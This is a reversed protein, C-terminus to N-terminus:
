KSTRGPGRLAQGLQMAPSCGAINAVFRAETEPSTGRKQLTKAVKPVASSSWHDKSICGGLASRTGRDRLPDVQGGKRHGLASNAGARQNAAVKRHQPTAAGRRTDAQVMGIATGPRLLEERELSDEREPRHVVGKQSVMLSSAPNLWPPTATATGQRLVPLPTAGRSTASSSCVTQSRKVSASPGVSFTAPPATSRGSLPAPSRASNRAILAPHWPSSTDARHALRSNIVPGRTITQSELAVDTDFTYMDLATPASSHDGRVFQASTAGSRDGSQLRHLIDNCSSWRMDDAYSDALNALTSLDVDLLDDLDPPLEMKFEQDMGENPASTSANGEGIVRPSHEDSRCRQRVPKHSHRSETRAAGAFESSTLAFNPDDRFPTANREAAFNAQSRGTIDVPYLPSDSAAQYLDSWKPRNPEREAIQEEYQLLVDDHPDHIEEGRLMFDPTNHSLHEERDSHLRYRLYKPCSEESMNEAEHRTDDGDGALEAAEEGPFVAVPKSERHDEAERLVLKRCGHVEHGTLEFDSVEKNLATQKYHQGLPAVGTVSRVLSAKSWLADDITSLVSSPRSPAGTQIGKGLHDGVIFQPLITEPLLGRDRGLMECRRPHPHTPPQRPQCAQQQLMDVVHVETQQDSLSHWAAEDM